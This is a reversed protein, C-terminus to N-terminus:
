SANKKPKEIAICQEVFTNFTIHKKKQGHGHSHGRSDGGSTVGGTGSSSSDQSLSARISGGASVPQSLSSSTSATPPFYSGSQADLGPPDIRPPSDKRFARSPGWRTVHTDSKTHSLTPRKGWSPDQEDESEVPSFLPSTPPFDSTLIESISRHKLIPKQPAPRRSTQSTSVLDLRDHASAPTSAEVSDPVPMPKPVPTWEVATHLPGYLWTVDSDKLWNLTEPSITKLKNRQKWWTRWSANELRVGNAIENKQKTMNRWSRWVDEEQWDHSLYDVQGRPLTTLASDDPVANTSVSVLLVPLYNAM